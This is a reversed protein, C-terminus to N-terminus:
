VEILSKSQLLEQLRGSTLDHFPNNEFVSANTNLMYISSQPSYENEFALKEPLQSHYDFLHPRAAPQEPQSLYRSPQTAPIVLLQDDDIDRTVLTAQSIVIPEISSSSQQVEINQLISSEENLTIDREVEKVLDSDMPIEEEMIRETPLLEKSLM